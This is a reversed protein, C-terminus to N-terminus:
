SLNNIKQAINEEQFLQHVAIVNDATLPGQKLFHKIERSQLDTLIGVINAGLENMSVVLLLCSECFKCVVHMLQM